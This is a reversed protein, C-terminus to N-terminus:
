SRETCQEKILQEISFDFVEGKKSAVTTCQLLHYEETCSHSTTRLVKDTYLLNSIENIFLHAKETLICNTAIERLRFLM